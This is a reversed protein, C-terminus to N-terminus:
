PQAGLALPRRRRARFAVALLLPLFLLISPLWSSDAPAAPVSSCGKAHANGEASAEAAGPDGAASGSPDPSAQIDPQTQTDAFGGEEVAQGGCVPWHLLTPPEDGEEYDWDNPDCPEPPKPIQYADFCRPDPAHLVVGAPSEVTLSVCVQCGDGAGEGETPGVRYHWVDHPIPAGPLVIFSRHNLTAPNQFDSGSTEFRVVLPGTKDDAALDYSTLHFFQVAKALGQCNYCDAGDWCHSLCTAYEAEFDVEVELAAIETPGVADAATFHVSQSVWVPEDEHPDEIGGVDAGLFDIRYAVGSKWGSKAILRYVRIFEKKVPSPNWQRIEKPIGIGDWKYAPPKAEIVDVAVPQPENQSLDWVAFGEPPFCLIGSEPTETYVVGTSFILVAERDAPVGGGEAPYSAVLEMNRPTPWPMCAEVNSEGALLLLSVVALTMFPGLEKKMM